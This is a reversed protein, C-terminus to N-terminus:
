RKTRQFLQQTVDSLAAKRLGFKKMKKREIEVGKLVNRGEVKKFKCQRFLM